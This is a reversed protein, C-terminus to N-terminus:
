ASDRRRWRRRGQERHREEDELRVHLRGLVLAREIARDQAHRRGDLDAAAVTARPTPSTTPRSRRGRRRSPAVVLPERVVVRAQALLHVRELLVCTSFRWSRRRRCSFRSSAGALRDARLDDALVEGLEEADRADHEVLARAVHPRVHRDDRGVADDARHEVDRAVRDVDLERDVRREADVDLVLARVRAAEHAARAVRRAVRALDLHDVRAVLHLDAIEEDRAALSAPERAPMGTARTVLTTLRSSPRSWSTSAAGVTSKERRSSTSMRRRRAGPQPGRGATRPSLGRM